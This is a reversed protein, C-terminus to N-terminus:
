LAPQVVEKELHIKKVKMGFLFRLISFKRIVFHYCLMIILFSVPILFLLKLSIPWELNRIMFGLSLIIPQHLIYFPLSAESAYNLFGNKFSLYKDALYFICLLLSWCNITRVAYFIVEQSSGPQPYAKIFWVIYIISTAAALIFNFRFTSKFTQKFAESSIFYYGFIFILLYFLLDWGGLGQTKIFGMAFLFFPLLIIHLVGFKNRKPVFKFLPVTVFSFVLLVLLYWLHLGFFAFNGTGGFDLYVGDFFHPFFDFYSGNFQNNALREMYIQPPTLVFVGFVLPVGLRILREKLYASVSRKELAYSVSVGSVAFFIPMMWAGVFLSFVLIGGSDLENNKVHWPFPNVFMSCHYLFVGLTALVRIWDMDYHRKISIDRNEM